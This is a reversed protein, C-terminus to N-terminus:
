NPDFASVFIRRLMSQHHSPGRSTGVPGKLRMIGGPFTDSGKHGKWCRIRSDQHQKQNLFDNSPGSKPTTVGLSQSQFSTTFCFCMRMYSYVHVRLSPNVTWDLMQPQKHHTATCLWTYIHVSLSNVCVMSKIRPTAGFMNNELRTSMIGSTNKHHLQKSMPKWSRLM